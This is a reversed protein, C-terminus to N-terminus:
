AREAPRLWAWGAPLLVLRLSGAAVALCPQCGDQLAWMGGVSGRKLNARPTRTM